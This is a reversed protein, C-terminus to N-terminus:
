EFVLSQKDIFQSVFDEDNVIARLDTIANTIDTETSAVPVSMNLDFVLKEKQPAMASDVTGVIARIRTRPVTFTQSGPNYEGRKRDIVLIRPKRTTSATHVLTVQNGNNQVGDFSYGIPKDM